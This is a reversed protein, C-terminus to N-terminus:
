QSRLLAVWLGCYSQRPAPAACATAGPNSRRLPEECHRGPRRSNLLTEVQDCVAGGEKPAAASPYFADSEQSTEVIFGGTPATSESSGRLASGISRLASSRM